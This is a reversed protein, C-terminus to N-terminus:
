RGDRAWKEILQRAITFRPPLKVGDFDEGNLLDIVTSKEIWRAEVIEDKDLVLERHEAEAMFGMMLSSPFPWPQSFQYAVSSLSVGAEEKLERVACEEPTEAAEIFGALASLFGPPFHPGRGLLCADDHVALVIAVPDTRPFHEAECNACHRKAGADAIRTQGGCRPCHRHRAHWDLLWRGQGVIALDRASLSAAAERLPTYAGIDSFPAAEPAPATSADIAFYATGGADATSMGLFVTAADDSFEHRAAASLYAPRDGALLPDGEYLPVIVASPDDLQAKVWDPDTRAASMRDLPEESFLCPNDSAPM